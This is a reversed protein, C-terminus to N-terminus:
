GPGSYMRRVQSTSSCTGPLEIEGPGEAGLIDTVFRVCRVFCQPGLRTCANLSLSLVGTRTQLILVKLWRFSSFIPARLGQILVSYTGERSWFYGLLQACLPHIACFAFCVVDAAISCVGIDPLISQICPCNSFLAVQGRWALPTGQSRNVM